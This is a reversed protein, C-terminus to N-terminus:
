RLYSALSLALVSGMVDTQLDGATITQFVDKTGSSFNVLTAVGASGDEPFERVLTTSGSLYGRGTEWETGSQGVIAYAFPVQTGFKTNFSQFQSAAGGLTIDGTGTTTTTEKVRDGYISM